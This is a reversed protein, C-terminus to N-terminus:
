KLMPWPLEWPRSKQLYLEQFASNLFFEGFNPQCSFLFEKGEFFFRLYSAHLYMRDAMDGAYRKDGTIPASLSKLAVRIQHTKGTHPKILFGRMGQELSFSFFQTVAINTKERTLKWSGNRTKAMTGIIAGQKKNPKRNSIAWYYKEVQKNFFLQSLNRNAQSGKALLLLGSTEKDLRHVPFLKDDDLQSRLRSVLGLPEDNGSNHMSLSVPKNVVIFSDHESLLQIKDNM